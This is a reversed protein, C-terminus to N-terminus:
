PSEIGRNLRHTWIGYLSRFELLWRDREHQTFGGLDIHDLVSDERMAALISWTQQFDIFEVDINFEVYPTYDSNIHFDKLYRRIDNEDGIYCNLVDRTSRLEVRAASSRVAEKKLEDEMHKASFLQEERSGVIYLFSSLMQTVPYWVTVHPFVEVATGLISDLCSAPMRNLQVWALFLGQPNLHDLASQFYEGTYLSASEAFNTPGNSDNVILDYRRGTLHLYNKGDMYIMRVKEDLQPGLNVHGFFQLAAQVLEPALEVCDIERVDHKALCATTEGCGFGVTLVREVRPHLLTGLHGTLKQSTFGEGAVAEGSTALLLTGYDEGALSEHVSVTTTVGEKVFLLRTDALKRAVHRHFLDAPIAAAVITLLVAPSLAALRDRLGRAPLFLQWMIGGIWIGALGLCTISLQVGLYPILVFGTVLGGLVAGITNIGYVTGTSRGVKPVHNSWAQLALPFGIGMTIAPALFLFLCYVLPAVTQDFSDIMSFVLVFLSLVQTYLRTTPWSTLMPVYLMGLLGLISLTVAFGLDPRSLRKALRSGIGAGIVNGILYATLVSSFVWVLNGLRYVLSRMWILEYGISILGSMFFAVMLLYARAPAAPPLITDSTAPAPTEPRAQRPTMCRRSLLYGGSAVLLNLGAAIYLTGMVGFLRILFYGALFCGAAAGLMNITYLRGVLHGAQQQLATVHRGLLPLTSGMLMTPVLLLAASVIVQVSLLHAPSPQYTRYFWRYVGDAQTLAWPLSLASITVLLELLAYLRLRGGVRDAWRGMVLAGLALGGMFVSVVISSAYVTNGLTLKLLRVWVVEDILSCIGSACYILMLLNVHARGVADANDVGPGPAEISRDM